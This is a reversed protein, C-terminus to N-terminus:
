SEGRLAAHIYDDVTVIHKLKNEDVGYEKVLTLAADDLEDSTLVDNVTIDSLKDTPDILEASVGLVRSLDSIVVMLKASQYQPYRDIWFKEDHHIGRLELFNALRKRRIHHYMMWLISPVVVFFYWGSM